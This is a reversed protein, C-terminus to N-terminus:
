LNFFHALKFRRKKEFIEETKNLKNNLSQYYIKGNMNIKARIHHKRQNSIGYAAFNRPKTEDIVIRNKGKLEILTEILSSYNEDIWTIDIFKGNDNADLHELITYELNM